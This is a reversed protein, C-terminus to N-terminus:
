RFDPDYELYEFCEEPNPKSGDYTLDEDEKFRFSIDTEFESVIAKIKDTYKM